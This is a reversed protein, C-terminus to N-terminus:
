VKEKKKKWTGIESPSFDSQAGAALMEDIENKREDPVSVMRATKIEWDNAATAELEHAGMVARPQHGEARLRKYAPRDKDLKRDMADASRTAAGRDGVGYTRVATIEMVVDGGCDPHTKPHEDRPTHISLWQEFGGACKKCRYRYTPM